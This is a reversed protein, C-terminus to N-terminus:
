QQAQQKTAIGKTPMLGLPGSLLGGSFHIHINSIRAAAIMAVDDGWSAGTSVVVDSDLLILM